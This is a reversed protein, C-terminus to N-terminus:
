RNAISNSQQKSLSADGVDKWNIQHSLIDFRYYFYKCESTLVRFKWFLRFIYKFIFTHGAIETNNKCKVRGALRDTVSVYELYSVRIDSFKPIM